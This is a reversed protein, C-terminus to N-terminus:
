CCIPIDQFVSVLDLLKYHCKMPHLQHITTPFFCETFYQCIHLLILLSQIKTQTYIHISYVYIYIHTPVMCVYLYIYTHILLQHFSITGDNWPQFKTGLINLWDTIQTQSLNEVRGRNGCSTQSIFVLQGPYFSNTFTGNYKKWFHHDQCWTERGGNKPIM